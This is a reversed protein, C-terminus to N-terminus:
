KAIAYQLIDKIGDAHILYLISILEKYTAIREQQIQSYKSLYNDITKQESNLSLNAYSAFASNNIIDLYKIRKKLQELEYAYTKLKQQKYTFTAISDRLIEKSQSYQLRVQSSMINNQIEDLEKTRSYSSLPISAEVGVLTQKQSLYMKRQGAYINVRLKDSWEDMLPKQEQLAKALKLDMSDKELMQILIEEDVLKVYEIQNLLIWLDKPIKLLTMNKFLLLEDKIKQISLKYEDYEYETMVGNDVKRKAMNSNMETIRLKLLLVSVNISNEYKKIKLLEEEKKLVDINKMTKYFNLKNDIQDQENKKKSEYYGQQFIDFELRVDFASDNNLTDYATNLKLYLGNFNEERQVDLAHRVDDKEINQEINRSADSAIERSILGKEDLASINFEEIKAPFTQSVITKKSVETKLDEEKSNCTTVSTNKFERRLMKAVTNASELSDFKGSYIYFQDDKIESKTEPLRNLIYNIKSKQTLSEALSSEFVKLCYNNIDIQKEKEQVEVQVQPKQVIESTHTYKKTNECSTVKANKYRSKTLALLKSADEYNKFKGSYISLKENEIKASPYPLDDLIAYIKSDNKTSLDFEDIYICYNASFLVNPFIILLLSLKIKNL